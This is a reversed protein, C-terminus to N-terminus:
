ELGALKAIWYYLIPILPMLILGVILGITAKKKDYEEKKKKMVEVELKKLEIEKQAKIREKELELQKDATNEAAALVKLDIKEGCASCFMYDRMGAEVKLDAGCKPCKIMQEMM